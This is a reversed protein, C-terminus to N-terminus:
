QVLILFSFLVKLHYSHCARVLEEKVPNAAVEEVELVAVEKVLQEEIQISIDVVIGSIITDITVIAM